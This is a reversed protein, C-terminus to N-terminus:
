KKDEQRNVFLTIENVFELLEDATFLYDGTCDLRYGMGDAKLSAEFTEDTSLNLEFTMGTNIM